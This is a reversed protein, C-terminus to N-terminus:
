ILWVTWEGQLDSSVFITSWVRPMRETWLFIIGAFQHFKTDKYFKNLLRLYEMLEAKSWADDQRSYEESEYFPKWKKTWVIGKPTIEVDAALDAIVSFDLHRKRVDLIGRLFQIMEHDKYKSFCSDIDSVYDDPVSHTFIREGTLRFVIGTLEFREDVSVKTQANAWIVCFLLILLLIIKKM